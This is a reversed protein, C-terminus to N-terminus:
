NKFLKTVKVWSGSAFGLATASHMTFSTIETATENWVGILNLSVQLGATDQMGTFYFLRPAGTISVPITFTGQLLKGTSTGSDIQLLAFTLEGNSASYSYRGNMRQNTALGDPQLSVIGTGSAGAIIYYDIQYGGDSNGTLGSVTIDAAAAALTVKTSAGAMLDALVQARTLDLPAASSSTNNGKYTHAAMNASKGNTIAGDAVKATTIGGDAVGSSPETIVQNVIATM